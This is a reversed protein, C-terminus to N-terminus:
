PKGHCTWEVMDLPPIYSHLVVAVWGRRPSMTTAGTSPLLQRPQEMENRSQCSRTGTPAYSEIPDCDICEFPFKKQRTCTLRTATLKATRLLSLSGGVLSQCVLGGPESFTHICTRAPGIVSHCSMDLSGYWWIFRSRRLWM